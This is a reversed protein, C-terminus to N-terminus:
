ISLELEAVHFINLVLFLVKSCELHGEGKVLCWRRPSNYTGDEKLLLPLNGGEFFAGNVMQLFHVDQIVEKGPFHCSEYKISPTM